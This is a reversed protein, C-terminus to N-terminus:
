GRGSFAYFMGTAAAASPRRTIRLGLAYAGGAAILDHLLLEAGISAPQIGLAFFPWHPPYWAAVQLDALFPFGSFVYATWFPIRGAHLEDSLYRQASYHVDLSDFQVTGSLLRPVNYACVM